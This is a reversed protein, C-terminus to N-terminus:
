VHVVPVIDRYAVVNRMDGAAPIAIVTVKAENACVLQLTFAGTSPDSVSSGVVANNTQSIAIVTRAIGTGAGNQVFGRLEKTNPYLDFSSRNANNGLVFEPWGTATWLSGGFAGPIRDTYGKTFARGITQVAGAQTVQAAIRQDFTTGVYSLAAM